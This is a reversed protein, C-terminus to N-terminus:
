SQECDRHMVRKPTTQVYVRHTTWLELALRKESPDACLRKALEKEHLGGNLSAQLWISSMLM